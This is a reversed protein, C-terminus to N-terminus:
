ARKDEHLISQVAEIVEQTEIAKMCPTVEGNLCNAKEKLRYTPAYHCPGCPFDKRIVKYIGNGIPGTHHPDSPGFLCATPKNLARAIHLIGTDLCLIGKSHKILFAVECLNRGVFNYIRKKNKIKDILLRPEKDKPSGTIFVDIGRSVLFDVIQAFKDIQWGKYPLYNSCSSHIIFFGNEIHAKLEQYLQEAPKSFPFDMTFDEENIKIGLLESLVYLYNEIAHRKKSFEISKDLFNKSFESYIGIRLAEPFVRYAFQTYEFNSELVVCLDYRRTSLKKLFQRRKFWRLFKHFKHYIFINNLYLNAEVVPKAQPSTLIDITAGNFTKRLKRIVPTVFLVDGINGIRILLIKNFM